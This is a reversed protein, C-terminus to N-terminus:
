FTLGDVAHLPCSIYLVILSKRARGIYVCSLPSTVLCVIILSSSVIDEPTQISYLSGIFLADM